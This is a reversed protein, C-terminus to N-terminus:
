ETIQKFIVDKKDERIYKGCYGTDNQFFICNRQGRFFCGNCPENEVVQLKEGSFEFIEGIPRTKYKIM